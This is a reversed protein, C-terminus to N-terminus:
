KYEPYAINQDLDACNALGIYSSVIKKFGMTSIYFDNVAPTIAEGIANTQYLSVMIRRDDARYFEYTYYQKAKTDPHSVTLTIKMLYERELAKAIEEKTLTDEYRVLSIIEFAEKFQIDGFTDLTGSQTMPEGDNLIINYLNTISVMEEGNIKLYKSLETEIGGDTSMLVTMKEYKTTNDQPENYIKGEEKNIWYSKFSVDFGLTGKLDDMNFEFDISSMNGIDMLIMEDRTWMQTFEFEVFELDAADVKAVLDYMDSGVYRFAYDGDYNVESIFLNFGLTDYWGFDSLNGDPSEGKEYLARPLEFYIRYAYLGYKDKTKNDLGVKVTEGSFGQSVSNGDVGVGGLLKIVEECALSNLGYIGYENSLTNEYLSGGYYPDRDSPNVFKFSVIARETVFYEIEYIGYTVFDRMYEYYTDKDSALLKLASGKKKDMLINYLPHLEEDENKLESMKVIVSVVDSKEGNIETYYKLSVTSKDTITTQIKGKEDYIETIESIYLKENLVLSNEATYEVSIEIKEKLNGIESERLKQEIEDSIMPSTLDIVGHWVIDSSVREGEVYLRYSVKILNNDGVTFGEPATDKTYEVSDTIVSDIAVIDYRYNLKEGKSFDLRMHSSEELELLLTLLIKDAETTEFSETDYYVGVEKGVLTGVIRNFDPHDKLTKMDFTLFDELELKYGDERDAVGPIFDAGERMSTLVDGHTAVISSEAVKEGEDSHQTNNWLKFDTTYYPEYLGDIELGEAVLMGNILTEFGRLAYEFYNSSTYYIYNRDIGDELDNKEYDVMFYFGSDTISKSGITVQRSTEIAKGESDTKVKGNADREVYTFYVNQANKKDLGYQELMIEIEANTDPLAIRETFYPMGVANCLYTLMYIRGYGDNQEVAYFSEYDFASDTSMIPPAYPIMNEVGDGNDYSLWMKGNEDPYRILDFSGNKNRVLLHTINVEEVRPYALTMNGYIAEGPLITPPETKTGTSKKVGKVIFYTGVLLALIVCLAIIIITTRSLNKKEIQKM